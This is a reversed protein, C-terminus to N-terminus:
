FLFKAEGYIKKWINITMQKHSLSEIRKNKKKLGTILSFLSKQKASFSLAFSSGMCGMCSSNFFGLLLERRNM